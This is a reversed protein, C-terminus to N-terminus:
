VGRFSGSARLAALRPAALAVVDAVRALLADVIGDGEIQLTVVGITGEGDRVALQATHVTANRAGVRLVRHARAWGDMHAAASDPGDDLTDRRLLAGLEDDAAVRYRYAVEDRETHHLAVAFASTRAIEALVDRLVRGVDRASTATAIADRVSSRLEGNRNPLPARDTFRRQAFRDALAQELEGRWARLREEDTIRRREAMREDDLRRQELRQEFRGEWEVLMDEIRRALGDESSARQQLSRELAARREEAWAAIRREEEERRGRVWEILRHEEDLRMREITRTVLEEAERLRRELQEEYLADANAGAQMEQREVLMAPPVPAPEPEPEPRVVTLRPPQAAPAPADAPDAAREPFTEEFEIGDAFRSPVSDSEHSLLSM